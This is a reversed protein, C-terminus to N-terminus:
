VTTESGGAVPIEEQSARHELAKEAFLSSRSSHDQLDKYRRRNEPLVLWVSAWDCFLISYNRSGTLHIIACSISEARDVQGAGYM